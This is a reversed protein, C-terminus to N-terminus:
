FRNIFCPETAKITHKKSFNMRKVAYNQTFVKKQFFKQLRNRNASCKLVKKFVLFLEVKDAPQMDGVRNDWTNIQDALAIVTSEKKEQPAVTTGPATSKSAAFVKLVPPPLNPQADKKKKSDRLSLYFPVTVKYSGYSKGNWLFAINGQKQIGALQTMGRSFFVALTARSWNDVKNWEIGLANASEEGLKEMAPTLQPNEPSFRKTTELSKKSPTEKKIEGNDQNAM